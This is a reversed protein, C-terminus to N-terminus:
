IRRYRGRKKGKDDRTKRLKNVGYAIAGLGALGATGLLAKKGLGMTAKKTPSKTVVEKVKESVKSVSQPPTNTTVVKPAKQNPKNSVSAVKEPIKSSTVKTSNPISTQPPIIKSVEPSKVESSVVKVDITQTYDKKTDRIAEKLRRGKKKIIEKEVRFAEAYPDYVQSDIKRKKFPPKKNKNHILDSAKQQINDRSRKPLNIAGKRANELLRRRLTSNEKELENRFKESFPQLGFDALYFM